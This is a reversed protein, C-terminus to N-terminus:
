KAFECVMNRSYFSGKFLFQGRIPAAHISKLFMLLQGQISAAVSLSLVAEKNIFSFLAFLDLSM